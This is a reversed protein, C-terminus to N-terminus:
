RQAVPSWRERADAELLAPLPKCLTFDTRIPARALRPGIGSIPRRRPIAILASSKAPRNGAAFITARDTGRRQGRLFVAAHLAPLAAGLENGRAPRRRRRTPNRRTKSRAYRCSIWFRARLITDHQVRGMSTWFRKGGNRLTSAGWGERGMRLKM